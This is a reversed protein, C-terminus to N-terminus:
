RKRGAGGRASIEQQEWGLGGGRYRRGGQVEPSRQWQTLISVGKGGAVVRAVTWGRTVVELSGGSFAGGGAVLKPSELWRRQHSGKGYCGRWHGRCKMEFYTKLVCLQETKAKSLFVFFPKDLTTFLLGSFVEGFLAWSNQLYQLM